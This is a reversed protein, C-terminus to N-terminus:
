AAEAALENAPKTLRALYEGGFRNSQVYIGSKWAPQGIGGRMLLGRLLIASIMQNRM